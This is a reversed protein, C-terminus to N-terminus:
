KRISNSRVQGMFGGRMASRGLSEVRGGNRSFRSIHYRPQKKLNLKVSYATEVNEGNLKGPKFRWNTITELAKKKLYTETAELVKIQQPKGKKSIVFVATASGYVDSPTIETIIQVNQSRPIPAVDLEEITFVEGRFQPIEEKTSANTMLSSTFLVFLLCSTMKFKM